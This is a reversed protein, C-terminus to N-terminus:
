RTLTLAATHQLKRINGCRLEPSAEITNIIAKFDFRPSSYAYRGRRHIKKKAGLGVRLRDMGVMTDKWRPEQGITLYPNPRCDHHRRPEQESKLAPRM